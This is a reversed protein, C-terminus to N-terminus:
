LDGAPNLTEEEGHEEMMPFVHPNGVLNGSCPDSPGKRGKKGLNAKGEDRKRRRTAFQSKCRDAAIGLADAKKKNSNNEEKGSSAPRSALPLSQPFGLATIGNHLIIEERERKRRQPM